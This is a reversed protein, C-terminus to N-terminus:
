RDFDVSELATRCATEIQPRHEPDAICEVQWTQGAGTFFYSSSTFESDEAELVGMGLEGIREERTSVRRVTGELDRKFEDLYRKPALKTRATRRVEIANLQEGREVAVRALMGGRPHKEAELDGPYEFTFPVRPSEFRVADVDATAGTTEVRERDGGEDGDDSGCAALLAAALFLSLGRKV